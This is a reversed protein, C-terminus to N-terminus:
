YRNSVGCCSIAEFSTPLRTYEPIIKYRKPVEHKRGLGAEHLTITMDAEGGLKNM